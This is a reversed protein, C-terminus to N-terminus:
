FVVNEKTCSLKRLYISHKEAVHKTDGAADALHRFINEFRNTGFIGKNRAGLVHQIQVQPYFFRGVRLRLDKLCYVFGM